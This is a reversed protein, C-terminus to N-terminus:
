ARQTFARRKRSSFVNTKRGGVSARPMAPVNIHLEAIDFKHGKVTPITTRTLTQIDKLVAKETYDCFSIAIGAAGARATRGVRHVYTEATRPLEYNIVHTLDDVDIGRSAIDTAVLVRTTGSKFNGLAHQRQFQSKDGHIAQSNIGSRQLLKCLKDAAHKTQTFVLATKINQDELIEILLETKNKKEVFYVSQSIREATSSVPHAEVYMPDKLLMNALQKVPTPLTASFLLTQKQVPLYSIIKRTDDYFGSDLMRDAEDLVLFKVQTLSLHRQQILDLLRGPTAVLIDVGNRLAKVQNSQPVGGFIVQHKFHLFKGYAKINEGIQLALERTPTLILSTISGNSKSSNLQEHMLQLMPLTFAATKGTGTQACALLDKRQLILPISREQIITPNVYGAEGLADLIPTILGLKNFSM